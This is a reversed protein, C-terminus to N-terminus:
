VVVSKRAWHRTTIQRSDVAASPAPRQCRARRARGALRDADEADIRTRLRGAEADDVPLFAVRAVHRAARDPGLTFRKRGPQPLDEVAHLLEDALVARGFDRDFAHEHVAIGVAGQLQALCAARGDAAYKRAYRRQVLVRGALHFERDHALAARLLFLDLQHHHRQEFQLAFETGVGGVRDPERQAM